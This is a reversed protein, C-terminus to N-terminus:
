VCFLNFPHWDGAKVDCDIAGIEDCTYTVSCSGNHTYSGITWDVDSCDSEFESKLSITAPVGLEIELACNDDDAASAAQALRRRDDFTVNLHYTADWACETLADARQASNRELHNLQTLPTTTAENDSRSSSFAFAALGVLMLASGASLLRWPRSPRAGIPEYSPLTALQEM